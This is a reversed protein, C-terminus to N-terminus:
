DDPTCGIYVTTKGDRTVRRFHRAEWWWLGSDDIRFDPESSYLIPDLRPCFEPTDDAVGLRAYEAPYPLILEPPWGNPTLM